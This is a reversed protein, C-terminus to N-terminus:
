IQFSQSMQQSLLISLDVFQNSWIKLKTAADVHIGLPVPLSAATTHMIVSGEGQTPKSTEAIMIPIVSETQNHLNDEGSSPEPVQLSPQQNPSHSDAVLVNSHAAQVIRDTSITQQLQSLVTQTVTNTIHLLQETSLEATNPKKGKAIRPRKRDDTEAM